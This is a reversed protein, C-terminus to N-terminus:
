GFLPEILLLVKLYCGSPVSFSKESISLEFVYTNNNLKLNNKPDEIFVYLFLIMWKRYLISLNLSGVYSPEQAIALLMYSLCIFLARFRIYRDDRKLGRSHVLLDREREREREKRCLGYNAITLRHPSYQTQSTLLRCVHGRKLGEILGLALPLIYISSALSTVPASRNM